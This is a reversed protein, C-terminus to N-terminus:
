EVSYSKCFEAWNWIWIRMRKQLQRGELAARRHFRRREASLATDRARRAHFDIMAQREERNM